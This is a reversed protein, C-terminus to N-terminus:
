LARAWGLAAEVSTLIPGPTPPPRNIMLVPIQLARAAELKTASLAGGANKVVLWDVGLRKFLAVEDAVSFPPRGILFEGGAFPFPGEPPDIQRCYLRRGTLGSFRELTQRGTALFVTAGEPIHAEAEEEEANIMTWIDGPSPTWPPRIVQAYPLARAACIDHTRASIRAAFPHTADLVATISEAALYAEFGTGGGFGGIRTPLPFKKPSRTAGALSVTASIGEAALGTAIQQAEGTGALLLLTM